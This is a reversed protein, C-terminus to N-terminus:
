GLRSGAHSPQRRRMKGRQHAEEETIVDVNVTLSVWGCLFCSADGDQTHDYLPNQCRPCRKM